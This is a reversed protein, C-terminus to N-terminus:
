VIEKVKYTEEQGGLDRFKFTNGLKLGLIKQALPSENSIVGKLPDATTRTMIIYERTDNTRLNELLVRTGILVIAPQKESFIVVESNTLIENVDRLEKQKLQMSLIDGEKKDIKSLYKELEHKKAELADKARPAIKIKENMKVLTIRGFLPGKTFLFGKM